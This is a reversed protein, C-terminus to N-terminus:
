DHELLLVLNVVLVLPDLVRVGVEDHVIADVPEALVSVLTCDKVLVALVTVDVRM